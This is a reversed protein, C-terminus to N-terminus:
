VGQVRVRFRGGRHQLAGAVLHQLRDQEVAIMELEALLEVSRGAVLLADAIQGPAVGREERRNAGPAGDSADLIDHQRTPCVSPRYLSEFTM